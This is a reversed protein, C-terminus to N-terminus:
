QVSDGECDTQGLDEKVNRSHSPFPLLDYNKVTIERRRRGPVCAEDLLVPGDDLEM